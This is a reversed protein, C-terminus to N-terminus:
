LELQLQVQAEAEARARARARLARLRSAADAGEHPVLRLSSMWSALSAEGQVCQVNSHLHEAERRRRKLAQESSCPQAARKRRPRGPQASGRLQSACQLEAHLRVPRLPPPAAEKAARRSEARPQRQQKMGESDRKFVTATKGDDRYVTVGHHNAVRTIVGLKALSYRALTRMSLLGDMAYTPVRQAAAASKALLDVLRNARWMVPTIPQGRSDRAGGITHVAGHAPM